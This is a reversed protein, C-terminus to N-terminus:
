SGFAASSDYFREERRNIPRVIPRGRRAARRTIRDAKAVIRRAYWHARPAGRELGLYALLFRLRDARSAGVERASADFQALDKILWRARRWRPRFTRALDILAFRPPRTCSPDIDAFVHCLYLDRHCLGTGHFAAIFRGLRIAFEHRALGITSGAAESELEQWIRDLPAGPVGELLVAGRREVGVSIEEIFGVARPAPISAAALEISRAYEWGARGARIAQKTVRDWQERLRPRSYRKMFVVDVFGPGPLRWRWRERGGLGPKNLADWTGPLGAETPSRHLLVDLRALECAALRERWVPSIEHRLTV